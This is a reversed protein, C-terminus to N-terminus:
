VSRLRWRVFAVPYEVGNLAKLVDSLNPAEKMIAWEAATHGEVRLNIDAGEKLLSCIVEAKGDIAARVLPPCTGKNVDAGRAILMLALRFNDRELAAGLMTQNDYIQDIHTGADLFGEIAEIDGNWAAVIQGLFGEGGRTHIPAPAPTVDKGVVAAANVETINVNAAMMFGSLVLLGIKSKFM